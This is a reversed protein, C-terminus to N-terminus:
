PHLRELLTPDFQTAFHTWNVELGIDLAVQRLIFGGALVLVPALLARRVRGGRLEWGELVLPVALGLTVFWLWFAITHSGGMLTALADQQMHTGTALGVLLLAVIGLEALILGADIGTFLHREGAQPAALVVLAAATSLGSVLFLPGLIASNWFPRAMFGSLLIGTYIGLAIGLPINWIAITRRHREALDLAWTGIRIRELWSAFLPYGQRLTALILAIAAPYVLILIWAGYSMPSAPKFTTYFRFVFLKHELDLFLTTMGLSLAIPGWLALRWATFPAQDERKAVVAWASYCMIGATVGGLFLYVAIRWDWIALTPDIKPNFHATALVEEM